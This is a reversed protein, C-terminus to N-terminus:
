GALIRGPCYESVIWLNKGLSNSRRGTLVTIIGSGVRLRHISSGLVIWEVAAFTFEDPTSCHEPSFMMSSVSNASCSVALVAILASTRINTPGCHNRKCLALRCWEYIWYEIIVKFPWQCAFNNNWYCDSYLFEAKSLRARWCDSLFKLAVNQGDRAEKAMRSLRFTTKFNELSQQCARNDLASNRCWFKLM